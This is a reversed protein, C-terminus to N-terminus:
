FLFTKSLADRYPSLGAAAAYRRSAELYPDQLGLGVGPGPPRVGLPGRRLMEDRIRFM